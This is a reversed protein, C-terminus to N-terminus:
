RKKQLLLSTVGQFLFFIWKMTPNKTPKGKQEPVTENKDKLGTRLKREAIYGTNSM